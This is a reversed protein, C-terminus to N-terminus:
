VKREAIIWESSTRSGKNLIMKSRHIKTLLNRTKKNKQEIDLADSLKGNLLKDIDKRSVKGFKKIFDTVLKMYYGDDQARTKIFVYRRNENNKVGRKLSLGHLKM